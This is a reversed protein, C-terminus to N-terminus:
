VRPQNQKLQSKFEVVDKIFVSASKREIKRERAIEKWGRVNREASQLMRHLYITFASRVSRFAHAVTQWILLLLREFLIHLTKVMRAASTDYRSLFQSLFTPAGRQLGVQKSVILATMGIFAAFFYISTAM